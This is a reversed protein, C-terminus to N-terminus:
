LLLSLGEKDFVLRDHPLCDYSKPLDTLITRIFCLKDLKNECLQLDGANFQSESIWM